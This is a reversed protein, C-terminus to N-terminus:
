IVGESICKAILEATNKAGAKKIINKKHTTVTHHSIFLKEGIEVSTKGEGVKRIIEIERKSFKDKLHKDTIKFKGNQEIAYLSPRKNGLFSVKHTFPINLYTVDTHVSLVQQIKGGESVNITRSQHLITRYNGNQTKLRMLYSVKYNTLESTPLQNLLFELIILEKNSMYELDDPHMIDLLTNINFNEPEVGLVNRIGEHVYDMKLNDFDFVFYYYPGAAFMSAIQEIIELQIKKKPKSISNGTNWVQLVNDINKEKM